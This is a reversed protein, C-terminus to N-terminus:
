IDQKINWYPNKKDFNLLTEYNRDKMKMNAIDNMGFIIDAYVSRLLIKNKYECTKVINIKGNSDKYYTMEYSNETNKNIIDRAIAYIKIPKGDKSKYSIVNSIFTVNKEKELEEAPYINIFKDVTIFNTIM